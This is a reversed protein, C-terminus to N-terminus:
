VSYLVTGQGAAPSDGLPVARQELAEALRLVQAGGSAARLREVRPMPSTISHYSDADAIGTGARLRMTASRIMEISLCADAAM